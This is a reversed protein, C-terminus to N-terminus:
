APRELLSSQPIEATEINQLIEEPVSEKQVPPMKIGKFMADQKIDRGVEKQFEEAEEEDLEQNEGEFIEYDRIGAREAIAMLMIMTPEALLLMLETNWKGDRWGKELIIQTLTIIDYSGEAMIEVLAVLREKEMLSVYLDELADVVTVFEPPREWAYNTDPPNTLSQGPTAKEFPRVMNVIEQNVAAM